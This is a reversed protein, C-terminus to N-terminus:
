SGQDQQLLADIVKNKVSVLVSECFGMPVRQSISTCRVMEGARESVESALYTRDAALEKKDHVASEISTIGQTLRIEKISEYTKPSLFGMPLPSDKITYAGNIGSYRLELSNTKRYSPIEDDSAYGELEKVAWSETSSDGARCANVKLKFLADSLSIKGDILQDVTGEETRGGDHMDKNGEVTISHVHALFQDRDYDWSKDADAPLGLFGCVSDRLENLRYKAEEDDLVLALRSADIAGSMESPTMGPLLVPICKSGLVWAAGMENLSAPSSYYNGKSIMLIVYLEYDTFCHKLFDFIDQGTPIGYGFYSSCFLSDQSLGVKRLLEVLERVFGRDRSSHSVFVMRRKPKEIKTSVLPAGNKELYEILGPIESEFQSYADLNTVYQNRQISPMNDHLWTQLERLAAAASAGDGSAISSDLLECVENVIPNSTYDTLAKTFANIHAKVIKPNEVMGGNPHPKGPYTSYPGQAPGM